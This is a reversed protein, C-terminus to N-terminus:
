LFKAKGIRKGREKKPWPSVHRAVVLNAFTLCNTSHTLDAISVAASSLSALSEDFGIGTKQRRTSDYPRRVSPRVSCSKIGLGLSLSLPSLDISPDTRRCVVVTTAQESEAREDNRRENSPAATVRRRRELQQSVSQPPAFLQSLMQNRWRSQLENRTPRHSYGSIHSM